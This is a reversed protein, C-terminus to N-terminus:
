KAMSELVEFMQPLGDIKPTGVPVSGYGYAAHIFDVGAEKASNYDGM